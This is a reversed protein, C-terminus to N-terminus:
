TCAALNFHRHRGTKCAACEDGARRMPKTCIYLMYRCAGWERRASMVMGRGGYRAWGFSVSRASPVIRVFVSVSVAGSPSPSLSPSHSLPSDVSIGSAATFSSLIAAVPHGALGLDVREPWGSRLRLHRLLHRGLTPPGSRSRPCSPLSTENGNPQWGSPGWSSFGEVTAGLGHWFTSLSGFPGFRIGM